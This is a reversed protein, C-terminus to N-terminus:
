EGVTVAADTPRAEGEPELAPDYFAGFLEADSPRDTAITRSVWTTNMYHKLAVNESIINGGWTGCGMSSTMPMGNNFAGANARSNPQNVMIRSVPM